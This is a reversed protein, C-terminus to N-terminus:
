FLDQPGLHIIIPTAITQPQYYASDIYLGGASLLCAPNVHNPIM